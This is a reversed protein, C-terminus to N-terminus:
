KNQRLFVYRLGNMCLFDVVFCKGRVIKVHREM